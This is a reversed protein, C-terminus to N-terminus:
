TFGSVSAPTPTESRMTNATTSPPIYERSPGVTPVADAPVILDGRSVDLDDALRLAVSLPAAAETVEEGLRDIGAIRTALGSPLVVVEDGVRFLGSAIQGAYARYDHARLVAQM